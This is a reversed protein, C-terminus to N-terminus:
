EREENCHNKNLPEYDYEMENSPRDIHSLPEYKYGIEAGSSNYALEYGRDLQAGPGAVIYSSEAGYGIKVEPCELEYGASLYDHTKESEKGAELQQRQREGQVDLAPKRQKSVAEQEGPAKREQLAREGAREDEWREQEDEQFARVIRQGEEYDETDAICLNYSLMFDYMSRWGMSKLFGSQSMDKPQVDSTKPQSAM